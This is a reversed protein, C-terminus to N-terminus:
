FNYSGALYAKAEESNLEIGEPAEYAGTFNSLSEENKDAESAIHIERANGFM